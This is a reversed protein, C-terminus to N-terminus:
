ARRPPIFVRQPTVIADALPAVARANPWVICRTLAGSGEVRAGANVITAELAVGPTVRASAAVFSAGPANAHTELWRANASIYGSPSGIDWWAGSVPRTDVPEGRRLRPLCYDGILCGREPLEDLARASLGVVGVYDAACVEDGHREGRLRVVRGQADLGVSGGERAPAVALCITSAAAAAMLQRLPPHELLIDGNWAVVPPELAHRAGAIGGAVGRIEPEHILTLTVSYDNSIESFKGMLWHTNALADPYGEAALHRTIHALASRDGVPLLPKPLEDTLPRLREGLGACLIMVRAMPWVGIRFQAREVDPALSRRGALALLPEQFSAGAATPM